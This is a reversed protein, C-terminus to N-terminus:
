KDQKNKRVDIRYIKNKVHYLKVYAGEKLYRDYAITQKYFPSARFYDIEFAQSGVGILDGPAHGAKPQERFVKVVGETVVHRETYFPKLIHDQRNKMDSASPVMLFGIASVFLMVYVRDNLSRVSRNKAAVVCIVLLSVSLMVGLLIKLLLMSSSLGSAQLNIEFITEM